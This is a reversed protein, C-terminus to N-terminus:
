ISSCVNEEKYQDVLAQYKELKVAEKVIDLIKNRDQSAKLLSDYTAVYGNLLPKYNWKVCVHNIKKVEIKPAKATVKSFSEWPQDRLLDYLLTDHLGELRSTVEHNDKHQEVWASMRESDQKQNIMKHHKALVKRLSKSHSLYPEIPGKQRLLGQLRSLVPVTAKELVETLSMDEWGQPLTGIM